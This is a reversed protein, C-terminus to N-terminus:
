PATYEYHRQLLVVPVFCAKNWAATSSLSVVFQAVCELRVPSGICEATHEGPVLACYCQEPCGFVYIHLVVVFLRLLLLLCLPEAKLQVAACFSLAHLTGQVTSCHMPTQHLYVQLFLLDQCINSCQCLGATLKPNCLMVSCCPICHAKFLAPLCQQRTFVCRYSCGSKM